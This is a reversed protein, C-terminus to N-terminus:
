IQGAYNKLWLAVEKLIPTRSVDVVPIRINGEPVVIQDRYEPMLSFIVHSWHVRGELQEKIVSNSTPPIASHRFVVGEAWLLPIVMAGVPAGVIHEKILNDLREHFVIEHIIVEKWPQYVINVMSKVM